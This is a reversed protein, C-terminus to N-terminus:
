EIVVMEIACPSFSLNKEEVYRITPDQLLSTYPHTSSIEFVKVKYIALYKCKSYFFILKQGSQKIALNKPV